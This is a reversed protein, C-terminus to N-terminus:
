SRRAVVVYGAIPVGDDHRLTQSELSVFTWGNAAVVDRLYAEAHAYRQSARLVYGNGTHSEVSFAFLGNTRLARQLAILLPALDGIYVLVDAAIALDFSGDQAHLFEVLDACALRDYIATDSARDLMRPSLDVGTLSTAFPKLLPGCLGTGCGLDVVDGFSTTVKQLAAVILEPTRYHLVDRLHADFREAYNDFLDKVYDPPSAQPAAEVGLAALLYNIQTTGAGCARARQYAAIAEENRKHERLLNGYFLHTNADHPDSALAQEYSHLADDDRQMKRLLTGRNRWSAAHNSAMSLSRDYIALADDYRGLMQLALGHNCWADAYNPRLTVARMFGDLAADYEGLDHLVTAWNFYAEAYEPQCCLAKDYSALAAEFAQMRRLANGRNNWALAYAPQLVIAIDYQQLAQDPLQLDQLAAGLNCHANAQSPDIQLAREILARAAEADGRQRALVGLLHLADFQRDNHALVQRYLDEAADFQGRQHLAVAQRLLATPETSNM